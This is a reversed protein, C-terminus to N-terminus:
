SHKAGHKTSPEAAENKPLDTDDDSSFVVPMDQKALVTPTVVVWIGLLDSLYM